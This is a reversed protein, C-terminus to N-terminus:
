RMFVPCVLQPYLRCGRLGALSPKPVCLRVMPSQDCGLLLDESGRPLRWLREPMLAIHICLEGIVDPLVM